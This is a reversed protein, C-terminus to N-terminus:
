SFLHNSSISSCVGSFEWARKVSHFKFNLLILLALIFLDLVRFCTSCLFTKRKNAGSISWLGFFCIFGDLLYSFLLPFISSLLHWLKPATEQRWLCLHLALTHPLSNPKNTLHPQSCTEGKPKRVLMQARGVVYQQGEGDMELIAKLNVVFVVKASKECCYLSLSFFWKIFAIWINFARIHFICWVLWM